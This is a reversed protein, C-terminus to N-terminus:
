MAQAQPQDTQEEQLPVQFLYKHEFLYNCVDIGNTFKVGTFQFSDNGLSEEIDLLIDDVDEEALGMAEFSQSLTVDGAKAGIQQAIVERVTDLCDQEDAFLTM